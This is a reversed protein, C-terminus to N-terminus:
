PPSTDRAPSESASSAAQRSTDRGRLALAVGGLISLAAVSLRTTVREDLLGVGAAAAIVPVLLQVVAARTASLSRLAAYWLSYAVGSALSGSLAALLLGRGTTHASALTAVSLGLTLPVCRSFNAATALLPEPSGRGALSYVGWGIGAGAMLLAGM